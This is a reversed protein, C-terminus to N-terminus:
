ALSGVKERVQGGWWEGTGSYRGWQSDRQRKGDVLTAVAELPIKKFHLLDHSEGM